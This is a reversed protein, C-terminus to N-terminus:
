MNMFSFLAGLDVKNYKSKDLIEDIFPKVQELAHSLHTPANFEDAAKASKKLKLENKYKELNFLGELYRITDNAKEESIMKARVRGKCGIM